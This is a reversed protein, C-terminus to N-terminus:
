HGPESSGLAELCATFHFISGKEPESELWIHGGM